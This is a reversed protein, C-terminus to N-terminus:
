PPDATAVLTNIVHWKPGRFEVPYVELVVYQTAALCVIGGRRVRCSRCAPGARTRM